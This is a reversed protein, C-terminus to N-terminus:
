MGLRSLCFWIMVEPKFVLLFFLILTRSIDRWKRAIYTNINIYQYINAIQWPSPTLSSNRSQATSPLHKREQRTPIVWAVVNHKHLCGKVYYSQFLQFNFQAKLGFM